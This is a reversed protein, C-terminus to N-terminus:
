AVIEEAGLRAKALPKPPVARVLARYAEAMAAPGPPPSTAAAIRTGLDPEALLRRLLAALALADGPAFLLGNRGDEIMEAIGGHGAGIVPRKAAFAEQIVIPANEVYTSPVITWDVGGLRAPLEDRRYAGPWTLVGEALLPARLSEVLTRYWPSQAELRSGHVEVALRAREDPSLRHLAALLVDLGKEPRVQGFFGLRLRGAPRPTPPPALPALGNAVVAIREAELGWDRYLRALFRSPAVFRDVAAFAALLTERRAAFAEPAHDPFCAHCAKPSPGSCPRREFDPRTLLGANHCLAAYDHLTLILAAQPLARRIEPLIEIGLHAFHHVFVADPALRRLFVHFRDLSGGEGWHQFWDGTRRRWLFEGPAVAAIAGPALDERGTRALLAAAEVALDARLARFLTDAALEGGGIGAGVHGHAIVLARM